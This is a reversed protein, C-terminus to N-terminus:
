YFIFLLSFLFTFLFISCKSIANKRQIGTVGNTLGLATEKLNVKVNVYCNGKVSFISYNTFYSSNLLPITLISISHPVQPFPEDIHVIDHKFPRMTQGDFDYAMREGKEIQYKWMIDLPDQIKNRFICRIQITSNISNYDLAAIEPSCRLIPYCDENCKIQQVYCFLSFIITTLVNKYILNM